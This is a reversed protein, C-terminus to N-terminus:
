RSSHTPPLAMRVAARLKAGEVGALAVVEPALRVTRLQTVGLERAWSTLWAEPAFTGWLPLPEIDVGLGRDVWSFRERLWATDPHAGGADDGRAGAVKENWARHCKAADTAAQRNTCLRPTAFPLTDFFSNKTGVKLEGNAGTFLLFGQAANSAALLGLSSAADVCGSAYQWVSRQATDIKRLVNITVDVPAIATRYPIGDPSAQDGITDISHFGLAHAAAILIRGRNRKAAVAVRRLAQPGPEIGQELAEDLSAGKALAATLRTHFTQAAVGGGAKCVLYYAQHIRDMGQLGVQPACAQQAAYLGVCCSPSDFGFQWPKADAGTHDGDLEPGVQVDSSAMESPIAEVLANLARKRKEPDALLREAIDNPFPIASVGTFWSPHFVDTRLEREHGALRMVVNKFAGSEASQHAAPLILAEDYVRLKDVISSRLEAAVNDGEIGLVRAM